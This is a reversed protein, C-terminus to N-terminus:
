APMNPADSPAYVVAAIWEYEELLDQHYNVITVEVHHLRAIEIM